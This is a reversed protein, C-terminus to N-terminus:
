VNRFNVLGAGLISTPSELFGNKKGTRRLQGLDTTKQSDAWTKRLVPM